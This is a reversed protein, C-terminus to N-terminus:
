GAQHHKAPIHELDQVLTRIRVMEAGACKNTTDLQNGLFGSAEVPNSGKSQRGELVQVGTTDQGRHSM